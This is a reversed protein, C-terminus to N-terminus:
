IFVASELADVVQPDFQKGSGKQIERLAKRWDRKKNHPRESTMADFADAVRIIRSALPIENGSKGDPYGSGDWNEHHHRIIPAITKFDKISSAIRAGIVPHQKLKEQEEEALRGPKSFIKRPLYAQGINQMYSAWALDRREYISLGMTRAIERAIATTRRIHGPHGSALRRDIIDAVLVLLKEVAMWTSLLSDDGTSALATRVYENAAEYSCIAQRVREDHVIRELHEMFRRPFREGALLSVRLLADQINSDDGFLVLSFADAAALVAAEVEEEELYLGLPYGSGAINEHHMGVLRSVTKLGPVTQLLDKSWSSHFFIDLDIKQTLSDPREVLRVSIPPDLHYGGIDKFFAAYILVRNHAGSFLSSYLADAIVAARLSCFMPENGDHDFLDAVACMLAWEFEATPADKLELTRQRARLTM